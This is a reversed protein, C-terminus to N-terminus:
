NRRHEGSEQAGAQVSETKKDAGCGSLVMTLLLVAAMILQSKTKTTM